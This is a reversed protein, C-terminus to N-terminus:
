RVDRNTDSLDIEAHMSLGVRLPHKKLDDPDIRIRVPLRQVVKIWNGTANQAPIAAFASGSGGAFGEVRGRYVIGSGYLDSTLTVPQGPQVSRLQGEKFNADVYMNQIPVVVMLPVGPQVRQGVAVKRQDIVGDIPARVITRALDIRAQELKAKAALVDPHNEVDVNAFLVENARRAGTAAREGAMAAALRSRAQSVGARAQRTITQSDTFEQQSIAGPGALAARRREDLAAKDLDAEAKVLDARATDIDAARVDVQGGLNADNALIQEVQRRTHGLAAEAQAVALKLDTDDIQLLIQGARVTQTNTVNVRTVAGGVLPTVQALEVNTYANETTETKAAFFASWVWWLLGIVVITGVVILLLKKRKAAKAPDRKPAEDQHETQKEADDTM